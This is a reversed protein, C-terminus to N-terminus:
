SGVMDSMTDSTREAGKRFAEYLLSALKGLPKRDSQMVVIDFTLSPSFPRWELEKHSYNVATLLDIIDVGPGRHVLECAVQTTFTDVRRAPSVGGNELTTEVTLRWQDFSSLTILTHPSIDSAHVVSL